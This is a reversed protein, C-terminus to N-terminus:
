AGDEHDGYMMKFLEYDGFEIFRVVLDSNFTPRPLNQLQVGRGAWRNTRDAGAYQHAYRLLGDSRSRSLFAPYKSLSSKNASEMHTIALRINPELTPDSALAALTAKQTNPLDFGQEKFWAIMKERQTPRIDTGTAEKFAIAIAEKEIEIFECANACTYRDVYIGRRNIRQDIEWIEREKRPLDPLAGDLCVTTSIDGLCYNYLREFQAPRDGYRWFTLEGNVKRPKALQLMQKKFDKKQVPLDLAKAAMDLSEPISHFYCKAMTDIWREPPIEPFGYREVMILAWIAQEFEANHAVFYIDPDAALLRLLQVKTTNHKLDYPKILFTIFSDSKEHWVGVGICNIDTRPHGAYIWAGVKRLEATGKTEFDLYTKQHNKIKM